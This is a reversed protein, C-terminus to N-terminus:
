RNHWLQRQLFQAPTMIAVTQFAGLRLLDRDGTVIIEAQAELACELIRDDDPDVAAKVHVKPDAKRSIAWLPQCATRTLGPPWGFKQIVRSKTEYPLASRSGFFGAEALELVRHPRGGFVLASIIVNSDAVVTIM